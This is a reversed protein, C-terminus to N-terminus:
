LYVCEPQTISMAKGCCRRNCSRTEINRQVYVTQRTSFNYRITGNGINRSSDHARTLEM